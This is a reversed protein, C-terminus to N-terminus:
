EESFYWLLTVWMIPVTFFGFAIMAIPNDGLITKLIFLAALYALVFAVTTVVKIMM